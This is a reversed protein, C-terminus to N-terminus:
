IHILNCTQLIPFNAIFRHMTYLKRGQKNKDRATLHPRMRNDTMEMCDTWNVQQDQVVGLCCIEDLSLRCDFDVEQM